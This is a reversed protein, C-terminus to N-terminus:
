RFFLVISSVLGMGTGLKLFFGQKRQAKVEKELKKSLDSQLKFQEEKNLVINELNTVKNELTVIISDKIEVKKNTLDILKNLETVQIKDGDGQLLDKIVLKAISLKLPVISDKKTGTQSFNNWTVTLLAISLILKKMQKLKLQQLIQSFM